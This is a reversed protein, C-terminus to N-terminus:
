RCELPDPLLVPKTILGPKPGVAHDGVYYRPKEPSNGLDRRHTEFGGGAECVLVVVDKRREPKPLLGKKPNFQLPFLSVADAVHFVFRRFVIQPRLRQVLHELGYVDGIVVQDRAGRLLQRVLHDGLAALAAAERAVNLGFDEIRQGLNGPLFERQLLQEIIAPSPGGWLETEGFKRGAM